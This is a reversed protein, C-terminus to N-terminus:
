SVCARDYPAPPVSNGRMQSYPGDRHSVFLCFVFGALRPFFQVPVVPCANRDSRRKILQVRRSPMPEYRDREM